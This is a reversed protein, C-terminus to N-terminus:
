APKRPAKRRPPAAAPTGGLQFALADLVACRPDDADRCRLFDALLGLQTVVSDFELTSRYLQHAADQYLRKLEAGPTPGLSGTDALWLAIPTKGSGGVAINGVVIVPVPLREVKLLGLAFLRRRLGALFAFLLSLPLLCYAALGRGQWFGPASRPM